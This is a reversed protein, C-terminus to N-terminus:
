KTRSNRNRPTGFYEATGTIPEGTDLGDLLLNEFPKLKAKPEGDITLIFSEGAECRDMIEEWREAAEAIDLSESPQNM